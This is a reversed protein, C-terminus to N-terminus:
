GIEFNKPRDDLSTGNAIWITTSHRASNLAVFFRLNMSMDRRALLTGHSYPKVRSGRNQERSLEHLFCTQIQYILAM